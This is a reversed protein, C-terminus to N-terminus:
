KEIMEIFAEARIALQGANALHEEREVILMPVGIAKLDPELYMSEGGWCECYQMKEYIVGEIGYEKCTDVIEKQLARRNDLMRPCVIRNLYYDAISGLLDKDDVKMVHNFPKSGCCLDDAVILGGKDEIVKLYGPNDLASGIVMIRARKDTIPARNKADALFAKLLEIYEDVTCNTSALMISLADEGSIVPNKVNRLANVQQILTRVENEKEIALKLKEDTLKNGSFKELAAILDKLERVFFAQELEGTKRPAGIQYFFKGENAKKSVHEANDYARAAMMCGDSTVVGDLGYTGDLLYQLMGRAYSCSFTSMWADGDPSETCGTARLRVPMIDLAYLIEVPVHCCILGLAKKGQAKWAKVSESSIESNFLKQYDM